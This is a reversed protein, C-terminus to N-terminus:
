ASATPVSLSGARRRSQQLLLKVSSHSVLAAFVRRSIEDKVSPYGFLDQQQGSKRKRKTSKKTEAGPSLQGKREEPKKMQTGPQHHQSGKAGHAGVRIAARKRRGM